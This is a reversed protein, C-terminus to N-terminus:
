AKRNQSFRAISEAASVSATINQRGSLVFSTFILINQNHRHLMDWNGNQTTGFIKNVTLIGQKIRSISSESQM